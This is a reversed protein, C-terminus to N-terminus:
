PNITQREKRAALCSQNAAFPGCLRFALVSVRSGKCFRSIRSRRLRDSLPALAPNFVCQSSSTIVFSVAVWTAVSFAWCGDHGGPGATGSRAGSCQQLHRQVACGSVSDLCAYEKCLGRPPFDSNHTIQLGDLGWSHLGGMFRLRDWKRERRGGGGRELGEM